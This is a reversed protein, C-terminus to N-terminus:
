VEKEETVLDMDEVLESFIGAVAALEQENDVIEYIAETDTENSVDKLILAEEEEDDGNSVLLYSVGGLKTEEIVQFEVEENNDGILTIFDDKKKTKEM